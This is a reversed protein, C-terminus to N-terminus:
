KQKILEDVLNKFQDLTMNLQEVVGNNIDYVGYEGYYIGLKGNEYLGTHIIVEMGEKLEPEDEVWVSTDGITGGRVMVVVEKRPEGKFVNQVDLKINSNILNHNEDWESRVEKVIGHIVDRSEIILEEKTVSGIIIASCDLIITLLTLFVVASFPTLRKM